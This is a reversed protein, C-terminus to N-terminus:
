LCQATLSRIGSAVAEDSVQYAARCQQGAGKGWRVDLEGQQALGTLYVQGGDGVIYGQDATEGTRTVTAGFPVTQGGARSLVMLARIGVSTQYNAKVVAGRTPIVTQSMIAVETDDGLTQPDLTVTNRRYPSGYSVVTYGRFDTKVGTQSNVAVGSAGPAAVLVVTEGLPQSLTIGEGHAVIGGQLGYNLRRSYKDYSYGGNVEGYTARWDANLSGSYGLGKTGYGQQVGWSLNGGELATGNLGLSHTTSGKKSSNVMYSAYLSRRYDRSFLRDLPASINFSFLHDTSGAHRSSYGDLGSNRSYTYSLGYSIGEWSSNYGAGLSELRRSTSWYDERVASLGLSGLTSGLSQNLSVEARNRRREQVQWSYGERQTDMVEALSWYGNTAYRYGAITFNTGTSLVNKSYRARFSRGNEKPQNQRKSWAQTVDVSVAGLSGLNKGTGLALSQYVSSFQGGGYATFGAPLGYILTGQTFPTKDVQSDYARYVGSTLSYKLRGERQLVPLSAYPIVMNQESGDSEKITVQLDGGAGTPYMDSIEFSGPSVYTQYITHGNQRVTVQANSRAIGRISPAYGRLSEPLMEDDSALQGGRFPVGDFVDSPSTSDGLLLQGGLAQIDRQLYTYVTDWKNSTSGGQQSSRSWTSYNRLRWLGINLGPRLNVYQSNSDRGQGNRPSNSAGSLSYNLLAAPIGDDWLRPDVWGRAANSVASQPFSLLLQQKTFRFESSAQPIASMLACEADGAGLAPFKGVLVGWKALDDLPICPLLKSHGDPASGARFEVTRTDMKQNNLFIDVRYDGPTQGGEDAFVSLDVAEQGTSGRELLAPNFYDRAAADPIIGAQLLLAAAVCVAGQTFTTRLHQNNKNNKNNKYNDM